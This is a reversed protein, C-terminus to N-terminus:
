RCPWSKAIRCCDLTDYTLADTLRCGFTLLGGRRSTTSSGLFPKTSMAKRASLGPAHSMWQWIPSDDAWGDEGKGVFQADRASVNSCSPVCARPEGRLDKLALIVDTRRQPLISPPILNLLAASVPIPPERIGLIQKIRVVADELVIRTDLSSFPNGQSRDERAEIRGPGNNNPCSAM